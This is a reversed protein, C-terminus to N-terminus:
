LISAINLANPRGQTDRARFVPLQSRMSGLVFPRSHDGNDIVAGAIEGRHHLGDPMEPPLAGHGRIFGHYSAGVFHIM